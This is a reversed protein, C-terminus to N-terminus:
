AHEFRSPATWEQKYSEFWWPKDGSASVSDRDSGKGQGEARESGFGVASDRIIQRARIIELAEPTPSGVGLALPYGAEPALVGLRRCNKTPSDDDPNAEPIRSDSKADEFRSGRYGAWENTARVDLGVVPIPVPSLRGGFSRNGGQEGRSEGGGADGGGGGEGGRATMRSTGEGSGKKDVGGQEGRDAEQPKAPAVLDLREALTADLCELTAQRCREDARREVGRKDVEQDTQRSREKNQALLGDQPESVRGREAAREERDQIELVCVCVCVCVCMVCVCFDMMQGFTGCAALTWAIALM